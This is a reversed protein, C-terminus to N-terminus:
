PRGRADGTLQVRDGSCKLPAKDVRIATGEM